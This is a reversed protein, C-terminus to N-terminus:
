MFCTFALNYLAFLFIKYEILFIRVRCVVSVNRLSLSDLKEFIKALIETPLDILSVNGSIYEINPYWDFAVADNLRDFRIQIAQGHNQCPELREYQFNCGYQSKPCQQILTKNLICDVHFHTLWHQEIEDRRCLAHCYFRPSKNFSKVNEEHEGSSFFKLRYIFSSPLDMDSISPMPEIDTTSTSLQTTSPLSDESIDAVNILTSSMKVLSPSSIQDSSNNYNSNFDM